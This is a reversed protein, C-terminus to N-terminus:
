FSEFYLPQIQELLPGTSFLPLVLVERSNTWFLRSPGKSWLCVCGWCQQWRLWCFLCIYCLAPSALVSFVVTSPKLAETGLCRRATTPPSCQFCRQLRLTEERQLASLPLQDPGSWLGSKSIFLMFMNFSNVKYLRLPGSIGQVLFPM